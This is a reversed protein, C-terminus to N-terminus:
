GKNKSCGHFVNIEFNFLRIGGKEYIANGDALYSKVSKQLLTNEPLKHPPVPSFLNYLFLYVGNGQSCLPYTIYEDAFKTINTEKGMLEKLKKEM